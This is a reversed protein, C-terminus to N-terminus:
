EVLVGVRDKILSIFHTIIDEHFDGIESAVSFITDDSLSMVINHNLLKKLIERGHTSTSHMMSLYRFIDFTSSEKCINIFWKVSQRELESKHKWLNLGSIFKFIEPFYELMINQNSEAITKLVNLYERHQWELDPDKLLRHLSSISENNWYLKQGKLLELLKKRLEYKFNNDEYDKFCEQLRVLCEEDYSMKILMNLTKNLVKPNSNKLNNICPKIEKLLNIFYDPQNKYAYIEISDIFSYSEDFKPALAFITIWDLSGCKSNHQVLASIANVVLFKTNSPLSFDDDINKFEKLMIASQFDDTLYSRCMWGNQ